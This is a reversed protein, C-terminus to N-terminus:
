SERILDCSMGRRPDSRNRVDSELVDIGRDAAHDLIFERRLRDMACDHKKAIHQSTPFPRTFETSSECKGIMSQAHLQRRQFIPLDDRRCRFLNPLQNVGGTLDAASAIRDRIEACTPQCLLQSNRHQFCFAFPSQTGSNTFFIAQTRSFIRDAQWSQQFFGVGIEKRTPRSGVM